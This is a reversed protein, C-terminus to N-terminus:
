RSWVHNLSFMRRKSKCRHEEADPLRNYCEREFWVHDKPATWCGESIYLDRIQHALNADTAFCVPEAYPGFMYRKALASSRESVYNSFWLRYSLESSLSQAVKHVQVHMEHGYEGWPNHTFVNDFGSLEERLRAQLITFSHEYRGRAIDPLRLGFETELPPSSWDYWERTLPVDLGLCEVHDIPYQDLVRKRAPGRDPVASNALFCIIVRDVRGLISSFWLVEDDPHAVVLCSHGFMGTEVAKNL